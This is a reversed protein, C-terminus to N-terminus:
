GGGRPMPVFELWIIAGGCHKCSWPKKTKPKATPLLEIVLEYLLCILERIRQLPTRSNPAMFGFHRVKTFGSPLVHQLYRRIFEVIKLSCKRWHKKGSPQYKFTVHTDSVQIIRGPAIAIRFVYQALYKLAANGNGVNRSHIVWKKKWVSAPPTLGAKKLETMLKARFIVGLPDTHVFLDTRSAQWDDKKLGGGPVIFHVHPHYELQRTWTHLIGTFGALDCGVYRPDKALKKLSDAAAKFLARYCAKQNSRFLRRLEQPITFTIMFYTVPLAKEMQKQLWEDSKGGQCTPCHRNGCSGDISHLKGCGSCEFIHNGYRGSGCHTIAYIVKKHADPMRDGYKAIYAKGHQRFIQQIANTM